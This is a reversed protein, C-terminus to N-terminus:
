TKEKFDEPCLWSMRELYRKNSADERLNDRIEVLARHLINKPTDFPMRTCYSGDQIGEYEQTDPNWKDVSFRLLPTDEPDDPNYDGEHGEGIFEWCIKFPYSKLVIDPFALVRMLDITM